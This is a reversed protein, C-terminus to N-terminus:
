RHINRKCFTSDDESDDSMPHSAAPPTKKVASSSGQKTASSSPETRGCASPVASCSNSRVYSSRRNASQSGYGRGTQQKSGSGNYLSDLPSTYKDVPERPSDHEHPRDPTSQSVTSCQLQANSPSRGRKSSSPLPASPKNYIPSPEKPPLFPISPSSSPGDVEDVADCFLSPQCQYNYSSEQANNRQTPNLDASNRHSPLPKQLPASFRYPNGNHHAEPIKAPTSPVRPRRPPQSSFASTSSTSKFTTESCKRSSSSSPFVKEEVPHYRPLSASSQAGRFHDSSSHAGDKDWSLGRPPPPPPIQHGAKFSDSPRHQQYDRHPKSHRTSWNNSSSHGSSRSPPYGLESPHIPEEKKINYAPM